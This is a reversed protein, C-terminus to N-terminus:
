AHVGFTTFYWLSSTLWLGVFATFVFGGLLPLVWGALGHKPLALMKVTFVGFVFCGLLSHMVTRFDFSSFGLAFLCHIAVPIAVLFAVRGSWRHLAPIWSPASEGYMIFASILQIIVGLLCITALWAKAPQPGSFGAVSVAIGTPSHLNAYVGLTLSVAAGLLLPLWLLRLTM